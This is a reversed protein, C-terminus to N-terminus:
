KKLDLLYAQSPLLEYGTKRYPSPHFYTSNEFDPLGGHLLTNYYWRAALPIPNRGHLSLFNSHGTGSIAHFNVYEAKESLPKKVRRGLQHKRSVFYAGGLTFDKNNYNIIIHRAFQIEDVWERHNKQPVCPANLILNQVWITDNLLSLRDNKIAQRIIINGMSHFFLNVSRTGLVGNSKLQKITDLVPVFDKYAVRANKVAFFYNGLRKKHATISPYDLLIVHVGYQAAMNMGRDVDSTFFKGMGETYIVWDKNREPLSSVADKLSFVPQVNWKGNGSYVVFYRIREGDREEPLFRFGSTDPKRNSAVIIVTDEADVAPVLGPEKLQLRSWFEKGNFYEFQASVSLPLLGILLFFVIRIGSNMFM